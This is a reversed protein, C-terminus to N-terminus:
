SQKSLHMAVYHWRWALLVCRQVDARKGHTKWYRASRMANHRYGLAKLRTVSTHAWRGTRVAETYSTTM